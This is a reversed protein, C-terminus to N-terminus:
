KVAGRIKRWAFYFLVLGLAIPLVVELVDVVGAGIATTQATILTIVDAIPM